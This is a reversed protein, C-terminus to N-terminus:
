GCGDRRSARSIFTAIIRVAPLGIMWELPSADAAMKSASHLEDRLAVVNRRHDARGDDGCLAHPPLSRRALVEGRRVHDDGVVDIEAAAVILRVHLQRPRYEDVALDDGVRHRAAMPGIDAADRRAAEGDGGPVYMGFADPM